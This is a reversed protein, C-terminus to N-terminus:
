GTPSCRRTTIVEEDEGSRTRSRTRSRFTDDMPMEFAVAAMATTMKKRAIMTTTATTVVM